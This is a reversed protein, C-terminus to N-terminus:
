MILPEDQSVKWGKGIKHKKNVTSCTLLRMEVVNSLCHARVPYLIQDLEENQVLGQGVLQWINVM